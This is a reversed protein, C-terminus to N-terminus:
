LAIAKLFDTMLYNLAIGANHSAVFEQTYKNYAETDFSGVRNAIATVFIFPVDPWQARIIGHTTEVSIINTAGAKQAATIAMEDITAFKAKLPINVSSIAVADAAMILQPPKAPNIPAALMDGNITNLITTDSVVRSFFSAPTKSPVLKGMHDPWTWNSHDGEADHAADHIFITGGVTACGNHSPEGPFGATGFAIVGNPAAGYESVVALARAKNDSVGHDLRLSMLDDLCWIEVTASPISARSDVDILCRPKRIINQIQQPQERPWIVERPTDLSPSRAMDNSAVAMLADAEYTKNAVVVIRLPTNTPVRVPLGSSQAKSARPGALLTAGVLGLFERRKM